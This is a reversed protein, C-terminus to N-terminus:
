IDKLMYGMGVKTQILKHEFDKDIKNRLYNIYVEIINTNTDFNIGWVNLALQSRSIIRNKNHLLYELLQFEKPTLNILKNNRRVIKTVSDFELDGAKLKKNKIDANTQSRKLFSKIKFLLENFEFPKILYDDAGAHYGALREGPETQSALFVIPIHENISRFLKCLDYANEDALNKDIIVLDYQNEKFMKISSNGNFAIDTRYGSDDLGQKIALAIKKESQVIIIKQTKM